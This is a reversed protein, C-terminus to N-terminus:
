DYCCFCLAISERLDLFRNDDNKMWPMVSLYSIIAYVNIQPSDQRAPSDAVVASTQASPKKRILGSTKNLFTTIAFRTNVDPLLQDPSVDMEDCQPCIHDEDETLQERIGANM